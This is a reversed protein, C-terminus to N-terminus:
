TQMEVLVYNFITQKIKTFNFVRGVEKKLTVLILMKSSPAYKGAYRRNSDRIWINQQMSVFVKKFFLTEMYVQTWDDEGAFTEDYRGKSM